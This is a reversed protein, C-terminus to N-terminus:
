RNSGWASGANGQPAAGPAPTNADAKAAADGAGAGDQAADAGGKAPDADGQPASPVSPPVPAPSDGVKAAKAAIAKARKEVAQEATPLKAYTPPVKGAVGDCEELAGESVIARANRFCVQGNIAAAAIMDDASPAVGDVFYLIKAPKMSLEM